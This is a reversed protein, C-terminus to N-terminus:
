YQNKPVIDMNLHDLRRMAFKKNNGQRYKVPHMHVCSKRNPMKGHNCNNFTNHTLCWMVTPSAMELFVKQRYMVIIMKNYLKVDSATLYFADSYGRKKNASKEFMCKKGM